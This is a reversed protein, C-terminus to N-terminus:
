EFAPVAQKCSMVEPDLPAYEAVAPQSAHVPRPDGSPVPKSAARRALRWLVQPRCKRAAYRAAAHHGASRTRSATMLQDQGRRAGTRAAKDRPQARALDPHDGIAGGGGPRRRHSCSRYSSVAM